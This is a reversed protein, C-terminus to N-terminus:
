LTLVRGIIISIVLLLEGVIMLKNIKLYQNIDSHSINVNESTYQLKKKLKYRLVLSIVLVILGVFASIKTIIVLKSLV